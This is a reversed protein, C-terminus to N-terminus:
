ISCGIKLEPARSLVNTIQMHLYIPSLSIFVRFFFDVYSHQITDIVHGSHETASAYSTTLTDEEGLARKLREVDDQNRHILSKFHHTDSFLTCRELYIQFDWNSM